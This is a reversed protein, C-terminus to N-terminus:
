QQGKPRRWIMDLLFLLAIMLCIDHGQITHMTM